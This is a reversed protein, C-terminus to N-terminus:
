FGSHKLYPSNSINCIAFVTTQHRTPKNKSVTTKLIDVFGISGTQHHPTSFYHPENLSSGSLRSWNKWAFNRWGNCPSTVELTGSTTNVFYYSARNMNYYCLICQLTLLIVFSNCTVPVRPSYHTIVIMINAVVTYTIHVARLIPTIYEMYEM